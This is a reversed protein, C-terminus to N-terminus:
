PNMEKNIPLEEVVMKSFLHAKILPVKEYSNNLSKDNKSLM